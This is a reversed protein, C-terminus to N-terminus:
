ACDVRPCGPAMSCRCVEALETDAADYHETYRQLLEEYRSNGAADGEGEGPGLSLCYVNNAVRRTIFRRV